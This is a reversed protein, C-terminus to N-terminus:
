LLDENAEECEWEETPNESHLGCMECVYWVVERYHSDTSRHPEWVHGDRVIRTIRTV